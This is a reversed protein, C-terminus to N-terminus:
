DPTSYSQLSKRITDATNVMVVAFIASLNASVDKFRGFLM